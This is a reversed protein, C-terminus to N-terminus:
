SARHHPEQCIYYLKIEKNNSTTHSLKPTMNAKECVTNASEDAKNKNFELLSMVITFTIKTITM